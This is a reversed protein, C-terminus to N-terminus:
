ELMRNDLWEDFSKKSIRISNGIKVTRFLGSNALTYAANKGIALISQIENVTYTRKDTILLDSNIQLKKEKHKDNRM